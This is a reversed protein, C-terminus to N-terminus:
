RNLVSIKPKDTLIMKSSRPANAHRLGDLSFLDKSFIRGHSRRRRLICGQRGIPYARGRFHHGLSLGGNVFALNTLILLCAGAAAYFREHGRRSAGHLLVFVAFPAAAVSIWLTAKGIEISLKAAARRCGWRRESLRMRSNGARRGWGVGKGSGRASILPTGWKSPPDFMVLGAACPLSTGASAERCSRTSAKAAPTAEAISSM